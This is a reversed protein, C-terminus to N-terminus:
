FEDEELDFFWLGVENNAAQLGADGQPEVDDQPEAVPNAMVPAQIGEAPYPIYRDFPGANLANRVEEQFREVQGPELPHPAIHMAEDVVQPEANYQFGGIQERVEDPEVIRRARRLAQADQREQEQLAAIRDALGGEFFQLKKSKLSGSAKEPKKEQVEDPWLRGEVIASHGIHREDMGETFYRGAKPEWMRSYNNELNARTAECAVNRVATSVKQGLAEINVRLDTASPRAYFQAAGKANAYDSGPMEIRYGDQVEFVKGARTIRPIAIDPHRYAPYNTAKNGLNWDYASSTIFPDYLGTLVRVPEAVKIGYNKAWARSVVIMYGLNAFWEILRQAPYHATNAGYIRSFYAAPIGDKTSGLMVNVSGILNPMTGAVKVMEDDVFKDGTAIEIESVSEDNQYLGYSAWYPSAIYGLQGHPARCSDYPRHCSVVNKINPRIHTQMLNMRFFGYREAWRARAEPSVPSVRVSKHFTFMHDCQDTFKLNARKAGTGFHDIYNVLNAIDEESYFVPEVGTYDVIQNRVKSRKNIFDADKNGM